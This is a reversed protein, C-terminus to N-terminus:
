RKETTFTYSGTTSNGGPSAYSFALYDQIDENYSGKGVCYYLDWRYVTNYDLTAGSASTDDNVTANWVFDTSDEYEDNYGLVGIQYEQTVGASSVVDWSFTPTTSVDTAEDAPSSLNVVFRNLVKVKPTSDSDGEGNSDFAAIKYQYTQNTSLEPDTDYFCTFSGVVSDGILEYAGSNESRYIRYGEAGDVATWTVYNIITANSPTVRLDVSHGGPLKLIYPDGALKNEEFFRTREKIFWGLDRSFTLAYAYAPFPSDLDSNGSSISTFDITVESRNHNVDYATVYLYTEGPPLSSGPGGYSFSLTNSDYAAGDAVSTRNGIRAEILHIPNSGSVSIEAQIGDEASVIDGDSLGTVSITPAEAVRDPNFIPMQILNVGSYSEGASVDFDQIKSQAYGSKSAVIDYSGASLSLSYAGYNDTTTSSARPSTTNRSSAQISSGEVAPGGNSKTVYGEISANDSSSSGGGGGGGGGCSVAALAFTVCLLLIVPISRQKKLFKPNGM